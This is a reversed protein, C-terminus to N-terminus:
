AITPIVGGECRLSAGNTAGALPSCVYAVMAAVEDVTAFRKLLSNPRVTRFFEEEVAQPTISRQRAVDKIFQEVGESRTPGALISNVTVRTGACMQALGRAISLQATKTTGYHIMETPICLASESSIFVIRGRDRKLMAPLWHRSLRIGSMVNTQFIGLWQADTIEAFPRVEYVGANNVLIDLPGVADVRSILEKCGAETSVDAPVAIVEVGKPARARIAGAADHTRKADRGNVVVRAGEGALHEAVAHGIGQSSGTVLALHGSLKMDM